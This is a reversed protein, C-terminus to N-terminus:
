DKLDYDKVYRGAASKSIGMKEAIARVSLGEARLEAAQERKTSARALYEDRPEAIMTRVTRESIGFKEAIERATKTRRKQIQAPM